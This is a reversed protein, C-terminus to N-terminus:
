RDRHSHAIQLAQELILDIEDFTLDIGTSASVELLYEEVQNEMDKKVDPNNRWDVIKLDQIIQDIDIGIEAIQEDSLPMSDDRKKLVERVTGYYAKAEPKNSITSPVRDGGRRMRDRLDRVKDLYEDAEIMRKEHFAEITEEILESFKKYFAPNEEMKEKAVKAMRFAIADAKSAKSGTVREVERDFDEELIEVPEVVQEVEDPAVFQDVLKKIRPEYEKFDVTDCYRQKVSRRLSEFFKLDDTYRDIQEQPTEQHFNESSLAIQLTRAFESLRDFFDDRIRENALHREMAENDDRDIGQFVRWVKRHLQPLDEIQEDVNHLAGRLDDEDFEALAQYETLAQNLEGLIGRYDLIYGYDKGPFPRNVRAIAQLLNHSRMRKTVYLVTDRPADFGTLLKDVVILIEIGGQSKFDNIITKEYNGKSGYKEMMRDWFQIEHDKPGSYIDDHGERTDPPSIVVATRVRDQEEFLEHMRIAMEKSPAAIQGKLNTDQWTNGYHQTIDYVIEEVTLSSEFVAKERSFKKSLDKKQEESLPETVREYGRDLQKEYVEQNVHRGEYLLPVVAEDEVAEEITYQHIFGDFKRATNKQEKTLPTGTFGLVCARPLAKRMRAHLKGYQTRHVEDILMFINESENVYDQVELAADFKHVLTTLIANGPDRLLELLHEGSEAQKPEKGCARFTKWIQEDLDIRDTVIVTRPNDVEEDLTLAKALMVMTLSKGSGQTHWIVGGRRRGDPHREKIRELTKQVAYYQQWRAIKKEGADFVIFQYTLELLREPRCLAYLVKDQRTPTRGENKPGANSLIPRVIEDLAVDQEKWYSWFKEPTGATGYKVKNPHGAIVLQAYHFLKPIGEERRQNRLMQSIGQEVADEKDRRKCEIVVFPIGNVFLVLDPRRTENLGDVEFEQTVHYVNNEPNEWDVYQLQFSKRDGKIKQEFSKGLTLLDYVEENTAVVGRDPVKRLADVAAYVNEDSFDYTEGKYEINNLRHLQESLVDTLLVRSTSGERKDLAQEPTLYSYGMEPTSLLELAPAQADTHELYSTSM